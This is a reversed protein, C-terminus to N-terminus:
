LISKLYDNIAADDSDRFFYEIFEPYQIANKLLTQDMDRLIDLLPRYTVAKVEDLIKKNRQMPIAREVPYGSGFPESFLKEFTYSLNLAGGWGFGQAFPMSICNGNNVQGFLYTDLPSTIHGCLVNPFSNAALMAGQGTGCGTVVFDVAKSTLLISALLGLQVYTLQHDQNNQYMGYNIVTHGKKSAESQLSEFILSNKDAQSNENLLAIKM